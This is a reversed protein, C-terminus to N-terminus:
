QHTGTAHGAGPEVEIRALKVPIAARITNHIEAVLDTRAALGRVQEEPADSVIRATFTIDKAAAGEAPFEASCEVEVGTIALGMKGAERYIDNCYCTALALTLLEGGTADSGLGSPKSPISLELTHKGSSLEVRHEGRSNKIRAISQM